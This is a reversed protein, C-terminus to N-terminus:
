QDADSSGTPHHLHVFPFPEDRFSLATNMQQLCEQAQAMCNLLEDDSSFVKKSQWYEFANM